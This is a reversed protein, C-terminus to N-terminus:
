GGTSQTASADTVQDPPPPDITVPAGVDFYELSVVAGGEGGAADFRISGAPVLGGLTDVEHLLDLAIHSGPRRVKIWQTPSGRRGTGTPGDLYPADLYLTDDIAIVARPTPPPLGRGADLAMTLRQSRRDFSGTVVLSTVGSAANAGIVVRFRGSLPPAPVSSRSVDVEHQDSTCAFSLTAFVVLVAPAVGHRWPM